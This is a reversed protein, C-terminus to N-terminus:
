KKLSALEEGLDAASLHIFATKRERVIGLFEWLSVSCFKAAASATMRGQALLGLAERLRWEKLGIQIMKRAATSKDFGETRMVLELGAEYEEPLRTAFSAYPM